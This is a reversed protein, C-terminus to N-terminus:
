YIGKGTSKLDLIFQSMPPAKLWDLRLMFTCYSYSAGVKGYSVGVQTVGDLLWLLYSRSFHHLESSKRIILHCTPNIALYNTLHCFSASFHIYSCSVVTQKGNDVVLQTFVSVNHESNGHCCRNGLKLSSCGRKM